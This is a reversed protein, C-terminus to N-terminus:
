MYRKIETYEGKVRLIVTISKTTRNRWFWGHNGDFAAELVGKEGSVGRGKKYSKSRKRNDGHLDFNAVGGEVTWDFVAKGGKKMVLKVEAGQGPKLKVSVEDKWDTGMAQAAAPRIFLSALFGSFSGSREDPKAPVTIKQEMQRDAEAERSLQEKIAGMEALGLVRGVGTPDISYESPLVIAVLIAGAAAIAILTSRILKKTTPLEDRTPKDSNYM